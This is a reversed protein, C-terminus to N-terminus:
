YLDIREKLTNAEITSRTELGGPTVESVEVSTWVNGHETFDCNSLAGQYNIEDGSNLVEKGEAFTSVTTGGGRAVPGINRQIAEHSVEGARHMALALVNLSDYSATGWTVLENDGAENYKPKFQELNPGQTAGAATLAGAAQEGASEILKPTALGSELMIDRGYGGQSWNQIAVTADELTLAVLWADFDAQFLRDIQSQYSAEGEPVQVRRSVTGGLSELAEQFADAYGTEGASNGNLIGMTEYGEDIAALAAGATSVTDGGVTRWVWEDDSLDQPTNKDGGRTDLYRSGPWPTVVPVQQEQLFDWLPVIESSFLGNIADVNDSNIFQRVVQRANQPDVATDRTNLNFEADLPGGAENIERVALDAAQSVSVQLFDWRGTVAAPQGVLVSEPAPGAQTGTAAGGTDSGDGDGGGNESGVCGAFGATLAGAGVLKMFRRRRTASAGRQSANNNGM